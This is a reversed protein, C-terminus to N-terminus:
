IYVLRKILLIHIKHFTAIFYHIRYSWIKLHNSSHCSICWIFFIHNCLLAVLILTLRGNVFKFLILCWRLKPMSCLQIKILNFYLFIRILSWTIRYQSSSCHSHGRVSHVNCPLSNELFNLDLRIQCRGFIPISISLKEQDKRYSYDHYIIITTPWPSWQLNFSFIFSALFELRHKTM